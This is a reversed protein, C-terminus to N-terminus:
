ESVIVIGRPGKGGAPFPSGPLASLLGTTSNVAFGSITDDVKNTVYLFNGRPDLALGFPHQGTPVPGSVPSLSGNSRLAYPSVSNAGVNSAYAFPQTPHIALRMPNLHCASHCSVKPSLAGAVHTLTGSGPDIRYSAISDQPRASRTIQM